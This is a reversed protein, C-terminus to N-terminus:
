LLTPKMCHFCLCFIEPSGAARNRVQCAQFMVPQNDHGTLMAHSLGPAGVRRKFPEPSLSRKQRWEQWKAAVSSDAAPAPASGQMDLQFSASMAHSGMCM